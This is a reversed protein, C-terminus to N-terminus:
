SHAEGSVSFQDNIHFTQDWAAIAGVALALVLVASSVVLVRSDRGDAGEAGARSKTGLVLGVVVAFQAALGPYTWDIDVLSHAVLALATISAGIVLAHDCACGACSGSWSWASVPSSRSGSCCAV